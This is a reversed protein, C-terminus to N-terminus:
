VYITLPRIKYESLCTVGADESHACNHIGIASSPCDVLRTETGLCQVDDLLINGPGQGFFANTRATAGTMFYCDIANDIAKTM